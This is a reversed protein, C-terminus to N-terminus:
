ATLREVETRSRAAIWKIFESEGMPNAFAQGQVLDCGLARLVDLQEDREVGGCVVEAGLGHVLHIVSSVITRASECRDIDDTLRSDLKVRDIPMDKMRAFNSYGSGFDDITISVGDARLAAIERMVEEDCRMALTETFELELMDLPAGADAMTRRLRGFFEPQSAHRPSITVCLRQRLGAARWRVLVQAAQGLAWDGIESILGSEEAIHIFADPLMMGSVPNNWRVLAEGAVVDNTRVSLQPHFALEFEGRAISRCLEREIQAREEAAASLAPDYICARSRGAAKAHYMATDAARMLGTLSTGHEPSLSIGISAGLQIKQDGLEFSDRLSDIVRHAIRKAEGAGGLSPFLLTFEDGALRAVLPHVLEGEETEAKVVARLRGAVLALTQDGQAHGLNDNVEKFGDLDIFLLALPDDGTRAQLIRDAERKFHVRNPLSTVPDYMAMAHVNEINSQVQKLLGDVAAAVAPMEERVIPPAPTTLDGTGVLMLRDVLASLARAQGSNPKESAVWVVLLAFLGIFLSAVLQEDLDTLLLYGLLTFVFSSVGACVSLVGNSIRGFINAV